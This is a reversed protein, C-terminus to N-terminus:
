EGSVVANDNYIVSDSLSDDGNMYTNKRTCMSKDCFRLNEGGGGIQEVFDSNLSEDIVTRKFKEDYYYIEGFMYGIIIDSNCYTHQKYCSTGTFNNVASISLVIQEFNTLAERMDRPNNLEQPWEGGSEMILAKTEKSLLPSDVNLDHRVLWSRDFLPHRSVEFKIDQFTRQDMKSTPYGEMVRAKYQDLQKSNVMGITRNSITTMSESKERSLMGTRTTPKASIILCGKLQSDILECDTRRSNQKLAFAFYYTKLEQV